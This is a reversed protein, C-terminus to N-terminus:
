VQDPIEIAGITNVTPTHVTWQGWTDTDTNYVATWIRGANPYAETLRVITKGYINGVVGQNPIFFVERYAYFPSNGLGYPVGQITSVDETAIVGPYMYADYYSGNTNIHLANTIVNNKAIEANYRYTHHTGELRPFVYACYKDDDFNASYLRFDDSHADM